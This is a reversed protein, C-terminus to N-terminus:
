LTFGIHAFRIPVIEFLILVLFVKFAKITDRRDFEGFTNKM